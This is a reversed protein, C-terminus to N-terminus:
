SADELCFDVGRVHRDCVGFQGFDSLNFLEFLFFKFILERFEALLYLRQGFLLVLDLLKCRGGFVKIFSEFNVSVGLGPLLGDRHNLIQLFVPLGSLNFFDGGNILDIMANVIIHGFQGLDSNLVLDFDFLFALQLYNLAHFGLFHVFDFLDFFDLGTGLKDGLEGFIM